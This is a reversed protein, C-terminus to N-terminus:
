WSIRGVIFLVGTLIIFAAGAMLLAAAILLTTGTLDVLISEQYDSLTINFTRKVMNVISRSQEPFPTRSIGKAIFWLALYVIWPVPFGIIFGLMWYQLHNEHATAALLFGSAAGIVVSAGATVRKLISVLSM